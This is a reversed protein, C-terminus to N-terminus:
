LLRLAASRDVRGVAFALQVRAEAWSRAVCRALVFVGGGRAVVCLRWESLGEQM